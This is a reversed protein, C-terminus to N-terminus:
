RGGAVVQLERYGSIRFANKGARKAAYLAKDARDMLTDSDEGNAPYVGV